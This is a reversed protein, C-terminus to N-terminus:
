LKEFLRCLCHGKENIEKKAWVCPCITEKNKEVRCPCYYEGFETKNTNLSKLLSEVRKANSSVAFGRDAAIEQLKTFNLSM